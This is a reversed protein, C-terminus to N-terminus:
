EQPKKQAESDCRCIQHTPEEKQIQNGPAQAEVIHVGQFLYQLSSVFCQAIELTVLKDM